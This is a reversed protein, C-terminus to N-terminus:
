VMRNFDLGDALTNSFFIVTANFSSDSPTISFSDDVSIFFVSSEVSSTSALV